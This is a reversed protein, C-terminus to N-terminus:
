TSEFIRKITPEPLYNMIESGEDSLAARQDDTLTPDAYARIIEALRSKARKVDAIIDAKWRQIDARMDAAVDPPQNDLGFVLLRAKEDLDFQLPFTM